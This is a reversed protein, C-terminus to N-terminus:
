VEIILDNLSHCFSSINTKQKFKNIMMKRHQQHWTLFDLFLMYCSLDNKNDTFLLFYLLFFLGWLELDM